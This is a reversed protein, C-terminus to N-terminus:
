LKYFHLNDITGKEREKTAWYPVELIPTSYFNTAGDVPDHLSNGNFYPEIPREDFLCKLEEDLWHKGESIPLQQWWAGARAAVKILYFGANAVEFDLTFEEVVVQRLDRGLIKNLPM